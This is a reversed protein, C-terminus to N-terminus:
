RRADLDAAARGPTRDLLNAPWTLDWGGSAARHARLSEPTHGGGGSVVADYRRLRIGLHTSTSGIRDIDSWPVLGIEAIRIGDDDARFLTSRRWLSVIAIGGGIGFFGFVGIGVVVNVVETPDVAFTVVGAAAVVACVIALFVLRGRPSIVTVTPRPESM